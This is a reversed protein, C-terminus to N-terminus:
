FFSQSFSRRKKKVDVLVLGNTRNTEINKYFEEFIELKRRLNKIKEVVKKLKYRHLAIIVLNKM